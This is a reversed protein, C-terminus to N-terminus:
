RVCSVTQRHLRLTDTGIAVAHKTGSDTPYQSESPDLRRLVHAGVPEGESPLSTAALTKSM